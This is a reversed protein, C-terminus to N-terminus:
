TSELKELEAATIFLRMAEEVKGERALDYGKRELESILRGVPWRDCNGLYKKAVHTARDRILSSDVKAGLSPEISSWATDCTSIENIPFQKLPADGVCGYSLTSDLSTQGFGFRRKLGLREVVKLSM